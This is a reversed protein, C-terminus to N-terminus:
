RPWSFSMATEGEKEGSADFRREFIFGCGVDDIAVVTSCRTGYVPNRIFIPSFPPEQAVDSRVTGSPNGGTTRGSSERPAARRRRDLRSPDGQPSHDQALARRPCWQVPWLGAAAFHAAHSRAQQVLIRGLGAPGCHPQVSQFGRPGRRFARCIAGGRSASGEISSRPVAPRDGVAWLRAPEHSRCVTREGLCRAMHWWIAPGQRGTYSEARGM